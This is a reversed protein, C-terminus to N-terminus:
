LDGESLVGKKILIDILEGASYGQTIKGDASVKVIEDVEMDKTADYRKKIKM